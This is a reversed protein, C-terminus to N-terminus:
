KCLFNMTLVVESFLHNIRSQGITHEGRLYGGPRRQEPPLLRDRIIHTEFSKKSSSSQHALANRIIGLERYSRLQNSTLTTFPEGRSFFAEARNRTHNYPLWDAYPRGGRIIAHAVKDSNVQILPKINSQDSVFRNRLLGIFLRELSREVFAYFLLLNGAYIKEIDTRTVSRKLNLSELKKLHRNFSRARSAVENAVTMASKPM